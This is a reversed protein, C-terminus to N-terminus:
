NVAILGNGKFIRNDAMIIILDIISIIAVCILVGIAGRMANLSLALIFTCVACMLVSHVLNVKKACSTNEAQGAAQNNYSNVNSLLATMM